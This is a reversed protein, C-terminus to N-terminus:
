FRRRKKRFLAKMRDKLPPRYGEQPKISDCYDGELDFGPDIKTGLVRQLFRGLAQTQTFEFCIGGVPSAVPAPEFAELARPIKMGDAIAFNVSQNGIYIRAQRMLRAMELANAVPVYQVTSLQYRKMFDEYEYALGVFGVKDVQDLFQYNIATNCFRTTRGILVNFRDGAAAAMDSDTPLSIWPAEIPFAVGFAKRYWGQILGGKLNLGSHKFADLDM